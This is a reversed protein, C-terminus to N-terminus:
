DNVRQSRDTIFQRVYRRRTDWISWVAVGVGVGVIISAVVVIIITWM